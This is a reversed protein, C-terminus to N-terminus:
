QTPLTIAAYPIIDEAPEPRDNVEFMRGEIQFWVFPEFVGEGVIPAPHFDVFGHALEGIESDKIHYIMRRCGLYTYFRTILEFRQIKNRGVLKVQILYVGKEMAM